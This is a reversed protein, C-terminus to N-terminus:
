GKVTTGLNYTSQGNNRSAVRTTAFGKATREDLRKLREPPVNHRHGCKCNVFSGSNFVSYITVAVIGAVARLWLYSKLRGFTMLCPVVIGSGRWGIKEARNNPRGPTAFDLWCFGIAPSLAQLSVCVAGIRRARAARAM